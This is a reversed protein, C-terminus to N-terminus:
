QVEFSIRKLIGRIAVVGNDLNSMYLNQGEVCISATTKFIIKETDYSIIKGCGEALLESMDTIQILSGNEHCLLAKKLINKM